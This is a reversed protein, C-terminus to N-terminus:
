WEGPWSLICTEVKHQDKGGDNNSDWWSQSWANGRWDSRSRKYGYKGPPDTDSRSRYREWWNWWNSYEWGRPGNSLDGAPPQPPDGPASSDDNYSPPRPSKGVARERIGVRATDTPPPDDKSGRSRSRKIDLHKDLAAAHKVSRMHANFPM